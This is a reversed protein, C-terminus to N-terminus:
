EAANKMNRIDMQYRQVVRASKTLIDAKNKVYEQM